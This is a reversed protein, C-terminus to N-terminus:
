QLSTWKIGVVINRMDALRYLVNGCFGFKIKLAVNSVFDILILKM